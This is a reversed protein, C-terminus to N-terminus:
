KYVIEELEAKVSGIFVEAKVKVPIKRADNTLWITMSKGKQIFIGEKALEPEVVFCQFEGAAVRVKEIRAVKVRLPWDEGTNIDIAFSKGVELNQARVLYLASLVDYAYPKMSGKEEIIVGNKKYVKAHFEGARHDYFVDEDRRFRGERLHKSFGLSVFSKTDLWAMNEDRVKYFSDFFPLTRASSSLLYATTSAIEVKEMSGLYSEGVKIVGWRVSYRYKEQGLGITRELGAFANGNSVTDISNSSVAVQAAYLLAFMAFFVSFLFNM